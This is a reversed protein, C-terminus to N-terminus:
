NEEKEWKRICMGVCVESVEGLCSAYCKGYLELARCELEAM